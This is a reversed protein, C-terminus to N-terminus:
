IMFIIARNPMAFYILLIKDTVPCSALHFPFSGSFHLLQTQCCRLLLGPSVCIIQKCHNMLDTRQKVLKLTLHLWVIFFQWSRILNEEPQPKEQRLQCSTSKLGLACISYIAELSAINSLTQFKKNKRPLSFGTHKKCKGLCMANITVTAAIM